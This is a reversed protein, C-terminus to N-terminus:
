RPTFRFATNPQIVPKNNGIVLATTGGDNEVWITAANGNAYNSSTGSTMTAYHYEFHGDDFLKVEFNLDDSATYHSAHIWAITEHDTQRQSYVQGDTFADSNELDDWFVGLAGVPKSTSNPVTKNTLSASTYTGFGVWGNSSVTATARPTGFYPFPTPLTVPTYDEDWSSTFLATGTASIDEFAVPISQLQYGFCTAVAGPTGLQQPVQTGFPATSNCAISHFPTSSTDTSVLYVPPDFNLSTGAPTGGDTAPWTASVQFNLNRLVVTGADDDMSFASGYQYNTSVFDNGADADTQGLVLTSGPALPLTGAITHTGAAGFDLTWGGLDIPLLSLNTVELWEGTTALPAAPNFMAESIALDRTTVVQAPTFSVKLYGNALAIFGGYTAPASFTVSIPSAQGSFLVLAGGAAEGSASLGLTSNAGELGITHSPTMSMQLKNFEYTVVGTQHVKAEFVLDSTPDGSVQVHDFQVILTRDPAENRIEWYVHGTGLTLDAWYPAIFNPEVSTNPLGSPTPEYYTYDGFVFFGNTSITINGALRNGYLFTEYDDLTIPDSIDDDSSPFSVSTGTTSIDVFGTSAAVNQVNQTAFGQVKAGAGGVTWALDIPNGQFIAAGGAPGFAAPTTADADATATIAPDITNDATLTYTVPGNPYATATGAAAATGHATVVTFGDSGTIRLHRANPVAWTLTAADGGNAVPVPTVTFTMVSVDGVPDVTATKTASGGGRSSKAILTYDTTTAPTDFQLSGSVAEAATGSRWFVVNNTSLEVVDANLTTWTLTLKGGSKAYKPAVFTKVVPASGVYVSISQEIRPGDGEVTLTYPVVAGVPLDPIMDDFTGDAAMAPDTVTALAGRGVSSLTVKTAQTTKWHFSVADGPQGYAVSSSFLDLTPGVKVSATEVTGDATIQYQTSHAPTVIVSGTDGQGMLDIAAGGVETLAITKAGPFAWALTVKGGASVASPLAAFVGAAGTGTVGVSVAATAKVGRSNVASLVFLSNDTVKVDASGQAANKTDIAMGGVQTLTLTTADHTSWALHTMEGSAVTSPTAAFSDITPAAPLPELKPTSNCAALSFIALALTLQTKM